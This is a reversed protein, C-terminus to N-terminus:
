HRSSGSAGSAPNPLNKELVRDVVKEVGELFSDSPLILAVPVVPQPYAKAVENARLLPSTVPLNLPKREPQARLFYMMWVAPTLTVAIQSCFNAVSALTPNGFAFASGFLDASAIMGLGLAVGFEWSRASLRLTPMSVLVFGLLCLELVSVCRMAGSTAAILLDRNPGRLYLAMALAILVSTLTVWRFVILGFGGLGPLPRMLHRFVEQIVLLATGAGVLYGIWFVYYYLAYAPHKDILSLRAGFLILNLAVDIGLRLTLYVGFAPFDRHAKQRVFVCWTVALLIPEALSLVHGDVHLTM